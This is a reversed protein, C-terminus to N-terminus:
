ALVLQGTVPTCEVRKSADCSSFTGGYGYAKL